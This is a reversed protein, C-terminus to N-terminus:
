ASCNKPCKISFPVSEATGETMGVRLAVRAHRTDDQHPALCSRLTPDRTSRLYARM